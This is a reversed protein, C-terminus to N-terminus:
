RQNHPDDKDKQKKKKLFKNATKSSKSLYKCSYFRHIFTQNTKVFSSTVIVDDIWDRQERNSTSTESTLQRALKKTSQNWPPHLLRFRRRNQFALIPPPTLLAPHAEPHTATAPRLPPRLYRGCSSKLRSSVDACSKRNRSDTEILSQQKTKRSSHVPNFQVSSCQVASFQVSDTWCVKLM